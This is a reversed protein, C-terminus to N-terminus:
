LVEILSFIAERQSVLPQIENSNNHQICVNKNTYSQLVISKLNIM